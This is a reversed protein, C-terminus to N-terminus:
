CWRSDYTAIRPLDGSRQPGGRTPCMPIRGCGDPGIPPNARLGADVPLRFSVRYKPDPPMRGRSICELAGAPVPRPCEAAEFNDVSLETLIDGPSVAVSGVDGVIGLFGPIRPEELRGLREYGPSPM